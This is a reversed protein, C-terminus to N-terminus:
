TERALGELTQITQQLDKLADLRAQQNLLEGELYKLRQMLERSGRIPQKQLLAIEPSLETMRRSYGEIQMVILAKIQEANLQM